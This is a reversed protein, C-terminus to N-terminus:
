PVFGGYPRYEDYLHYKRAYDKTGPIRAVTARNRHLFEVIEYVDIWIQNPSDKQSEDFVLQVGFHLHPIKMGNVDEKDSYGTMGMYGIVDGGQVINGIKIDPAYPHGKRLHAYYYYRKKDHSRIGVRWGGYRNWGTEEVVGGEVAIIPTGISGNLDNGFHSRRYGYTRANGFDRYHSYSYGEAIPSYAKLGYKHIITSGGPNDKQPVERQHEGLYGCLVASYATHYYDYYKYSSLIDRPTEGASLREAAADMHAPKYVKWDGGYRTGLTALLVIWDIHASEDSGYTDIDLQMAKAMAGAPVTFNVWKITPVEAEPAEAAYAAAGNALMLPLILLLAFVRYKSKIAM